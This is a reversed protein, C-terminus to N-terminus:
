FRVRVGKIKAQMVEWTLLNQRQKEQQQQQQWQGYNFLLHLICLMMKLPIKMM